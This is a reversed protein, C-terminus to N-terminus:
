RDRWIERLNEAWPDDDYMPLEFDRPWGAYALYVSVDRHLPCVGDYTSHYCRGTFHGDGTFSRVYCNGTFVPEPKARLKDLLRRFM